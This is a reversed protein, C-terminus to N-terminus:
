QIANRNQIRLTEEHFFTTYLPTLKSACAEESKWDIVYKTGKDEKLEFM